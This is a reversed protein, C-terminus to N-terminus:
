RREKPRSTGLFAALELAVLRPRQWNMSHNLNGYIQLRVNPISELLQKQDAELFIEDEDGWLMLTPAQIKYLEDAFNAQLLGDLAARWIRAPVKQTESVINNIFQDTIPDPATGSQFDYVFDRPIPDDLDAVADAVYLLVENQTSDAASSILVIKKVRDPHDIAIRQAIVSGMSHGVISAKRYGFHDMFAIIDESFHTMSYGEEPKSSDGHGRQTIAIAHFEPGLNKMVESYSFWSDLYGHLLIVVNKKGRGQEAYNLTVGTSLAVDAFVMTKGAPGKALTKTKDEGSWAPIVLVMLWLCCIWRENRM